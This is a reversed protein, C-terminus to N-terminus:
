SGNLRRDRGNGTCSQCKHYPSLAVAQHGFATRGMVLNHKLADICVIVFDLTIFCSNGLGSM